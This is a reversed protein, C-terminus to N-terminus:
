DLGVFILDNVRYSLFPFPGLFYPSAGCFAQFRFFLATDLSDTSEDIEWVVVKFAKGFPHRGTPESGGNIGALCGDGGGVKQYKGSIWQKGEFSAQVIAGQNELDDLEIHACDDSCSVNFGKQYSGSITSNRKSEAQQWVKDIRAVISGFSVLPNPFNGVPVFSLGPIESIFSSSWDNFDKLKGLELNPIDFLNYNELNIQELKLNNLVPIGALEEITQNLMSAYGSQELLKAIPAVRDAQYDGLGPVAASLDAISQKGILSFDELSYSSLNIGSLTSIEDLNFAQPSLSDQFDGLKLILDPTDGTTWSRSFDYGVWNNYETGISGSSLIGNFESFSLSSWDPIYVDTASFDEYAQISNTWLASCFSILALTVLILKKM